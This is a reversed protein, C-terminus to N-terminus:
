QINLVSVLMTMAAALARARHSKSLKTISRCNFRSTLGRMWGALIPACQSM